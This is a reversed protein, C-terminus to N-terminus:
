CLATAARIFERAHRLAAETDRTDIIRWASVRDRQLPRARYPTSLAAAAHEAIVTRLDKGAVADSVPPLSQHRFPSTISPSSMAWSM